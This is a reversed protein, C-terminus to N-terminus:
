LKRVTFEHTNQNFDAEQRGFEVGALFYAEATSTAELDFLYSEGECGVVIQYGRRAM